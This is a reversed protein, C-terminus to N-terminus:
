SFFASAFVAALGLTGVVGFELLVQRNLKRDVYNSALGHLVYFVVLLFAGGVLTSLAAWYNLGWTLEAAVIGGCTALLGLTTRRGEVPLGMAEHWAADRSLMEFLLLATVIGVATASALSRIKLGYLVSFLLFGALHSILNLSTQALAFYADGTDRSHEQAWFVGAFAAGVLLTVLGQILGSDFFQLFVVAAGALLGPVVVDLPIQLLPLRALAVQSGTAAANAGVWRAGAAAVFVLALALLLILAGNQGTGTDALGRELVLVLGLGVTLLATVIFIRETRHM